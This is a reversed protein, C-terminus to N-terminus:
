TIKFKLSLTTGENAHSTIKFDANLEEGRKKFTSMGNGAYVQSVDFGKGDDNINMQIYQNDQLISVSIKKADSYKAANNLAEKFFLYFNKHQGM